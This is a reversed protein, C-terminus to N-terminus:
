FLDHFLISCNGYKKLAHWMDNLAQLVLKIKFLFGFIKNYNHMCEDSIIINLPWDVRFFNKPQSKLYIKKYIIM